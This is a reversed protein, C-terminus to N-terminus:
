EHCIQGVQICSRDSDPAVWLLPWYLCGMCHHAPHLRCIRHYNDTWLDAQLETAGEVARAHFFSVFFYLANMVVNFNKTFQGRLSLMKKQRSLRSVEVQLALYWHLMQASKKQMADFWTMGENLYSGAVSSYSSTIKLILSIHQIACSLVLNTEPLSPLILVKPSKPTNYSKILKDYNYSAINNCVNTHVSDYNSIINITCDLNMLGRWKKAAAETGASVAMIHCAQFGAHDLVQLMFNLLSFKFYVHCSVGQKSGVLSPLNGM